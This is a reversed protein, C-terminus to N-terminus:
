PEPISCQDITFVGSRGAGLFRSMQILGGYCSTSATTGEDGFSAHREKNPSSHWVDCNKEKPVYIEWNDREGEPFHERFERENGGQFMDEDRFSPRADGHTNDSTADSAM